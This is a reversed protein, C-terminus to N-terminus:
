WSGDKLFAVLKEDLWELDTVSLGPGGAWHGWISPFAICKGVGAKMWRVENESDEPPFYLDTQSPLVLTKTKISSMARELDKNYPEQASCDSTQWTHIMAM